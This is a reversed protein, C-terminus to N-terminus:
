SGQNYRRRDYYDRSAEIYENRTWNHHLFFNDMAERRRSAHIRVSLCKMYDTSCFDELLICLQEYSPRSLARFTDDVSPM